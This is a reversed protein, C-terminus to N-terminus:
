TGKVNLLQNKLGERKKTEDTLKGENCKGVQQQMTALFKPEKLNESIDM